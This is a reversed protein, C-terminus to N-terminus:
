PCPKEEQCAAKGGINKVDKFMRWERDIIDMILTNNQIM